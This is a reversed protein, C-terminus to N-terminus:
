HNSRHIKRQKGLKETTQAIQELQAELADQYAQVPDYSNIVPTSETQKEVDKQNEKM